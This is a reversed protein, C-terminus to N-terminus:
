PQYLEAYRKVMEDLSPLQRAAAGCRERFFGFLEPYTLFDDLIGLTRPVPNEAPVLYGVTHRAIRERLAGFDSAIVPIGGAVAESLTYSYTEPWRSLLLVIDIGERCLISNLEDPRYAGTVKLGSSQLLDDPITYGLEGIISFSVKPFLASDRIDRVLDLFLDAGKEFTFAGLYAVNLPDSRREGPVTLGNTPVGHEIMLAKNTASPYLASFVDQVYRSPTVIADAMGFLEHVYERRRSVKEEDINKVGLLGLCKACRASDKEFYCFSLRNGYLPSLLKYSPCWFFYDHTSIVVRAGARRAEEIVSLPYGSLHQFHVIDISFRRLIEGFSKEVVGNHLTMDDCFHGKLRVEETSGNHVSSVVLHSSSPFMIFIRQGKLSFARVLDTVHREVGGLFIYPDKHLIYLLNM